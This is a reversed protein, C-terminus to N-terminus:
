QSDREENEVFIRFRAKESLLDYHKGVEVQNEQQIIVGEPTYLRWLLNSQGYLHEKKRDLGDLESRLRRFSFLLNQTIKLKMRELNQRHTEIMTMPNGQEARQEWQNLRARGTEIYQLFQAQIRQEMEDLLRHLDQRDPSVVVAAETPTSARQDSVLDVLTFDVQHGVASVLPISCKSIARVLNEQNFAGLDESSGGGRALVIVDIKHIQSNRELALLADEMEKAAQKGQVGAPALVVEALPYRRNLENCFDHLVAGHLSTILGIRKPFTPLSRKRNRDFIGEQFLKKKLLELQLLQSGLGVPVVQRVILQYRSRSLYTDIRGSAVVQDGEQFNVRVGQDFICCNLLADRDKLDFYTFRGRRLNVVEGEIDISNLVMDRRILQQIYLSLERVKIAKSM